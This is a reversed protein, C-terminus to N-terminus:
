HCKERPQPEQGGRASMIRHGGFPTEQETAILIEGGALEALGDDLVSACDQLIRACPVSADLKGVRKQGCAVPRIRQALGDPSPTPVANSLPSTIM